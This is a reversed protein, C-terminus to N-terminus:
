RLIRPPIAAAKNGRDVAAISSAIACRHFKLAV